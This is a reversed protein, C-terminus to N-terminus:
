NWRRTVATRTTCGRRSSAIGNLRVGHCSCHDAALWWRPAQRSRWRAAGPPPCRATSTAQTLGDDPFYREVSRGATLARAFRALSCASVRGLAADLTALRHRAPM